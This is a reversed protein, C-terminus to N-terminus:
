SSNKWYRLSSYHICYLFTHTSDTRIPTDNQGLFHKDLIKVPELHKRAFDLRVCMNKLRTAYLKNCFRQIELWSPNEQNDVKLFHYLQNRVLKRSKAWHQSATKLRMNAETVQAITNLILTFLQSICIWSFWHWM